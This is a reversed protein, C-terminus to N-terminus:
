RQMNYARIAKTTQRYSSLEEATRDRSRSLNEICRATERDLVTLLERIRVVEDAEAGAGTEARKLGKIGGPMMAQLEALKERCSGSLREIDIESNEEHNALQRTFGILQDLHDIIHQHEDNM